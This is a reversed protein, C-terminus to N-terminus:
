SEGRGGGGAVLFLIVGVPALLGGVDIWNPTVGHTDHPGPLHHVLSLDYAPMILWYLDVYHAILLVVAGITLATLHRKITRPLLFLFPFAFHTIMLVISIAQWGGSWRNRYWVTEEPINAYWQLMYQSFAIYAWFVTFAFMLKGIDHRHEVTSIRRFLGARHMSITMLALLSLAVLFSGGFIYVGFITSYWHPQLSMIWDFAAFSITLAFVIILPGSAKQMRATLAPDGSDDQARSTRAFWLGMLAWAVLYIASRVFFFVPSLYPAKHALIEDGPAPHWWEFYTFPAMVAVPVFLLILVPATGAVWEMHRRAVVSWGAKTALTVLIFFLAGLVLTFAYSFGVLYSFAFRKVDVIAGIVSILIGVAAVAGALMVHKRAREVPLRASELTVVDENM